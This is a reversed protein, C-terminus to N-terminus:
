LIVWMRQLCGRTPWAAPTQAASLGTLGSLGALLATVLLRRPTPNLPLSM